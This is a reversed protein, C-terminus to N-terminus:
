PDRIFILSKGLLSTIYFLLRISSSLTIKNWIICYCIQDNRLTFYLLTISLTQWFPIKDAFWKMVRIPAKILALGFEVLVTLCICCPCTSRYVYYCIYLWFIIWIICNGSIFILSFFLFSFSSIFFGIIWILVGVISILLSILAFPLGLMFALPRCSCDIGPCM